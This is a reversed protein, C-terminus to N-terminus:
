SESVLDCPPHTCNVPLPAGSGPDNVERGGAIRSMSMCARDFAHRDSVPTM